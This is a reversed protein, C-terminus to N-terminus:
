ARRIAKSQCRRAHRCLDRVALEAVLPDAELVSLDCRLRDLRHGPEWQSHRGPQGLCRCKRNGEGFPEPGLGFHVNVGNKRLLETQTKLDAGTLHGNDKYDLGPVLIVTYGTPPVKLTLPDVASLNQVFQEQIRQNNSISILQHGWFLSAFDLSYKKSLSKLAERDPVTGAYKHHLGDLEIDLSSDNRNGSLYNEVYYAAVKSDVTTELMYPGFKGHIPIRTKVCSCGALCVTTFAVFWHLKM